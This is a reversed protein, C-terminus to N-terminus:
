IVTNRVGYDPLVNFNVHDFVVRIKVAVKKVAIFFSIVRIVKVTELFGTGRTCFDEVILLSIRSEIPATVCISGAIKKLSITQLGTLSVIEECLKTAGDPVGVIHTPKIKTERLRMVMQTAIINRINWLELLIKSVFFGDSHLGSKLLAHMGVRYEERAAKYDYSWFAGLLKAIHIFEDPSILRTIETPQLQLLGNLDLDLIKLSM